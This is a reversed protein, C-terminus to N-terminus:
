DIAKSTRSWIWSSKNQDQSIYHAAPSVLGLQNLYQLDKGRTSNMQEDLTLVLPTAAIENALALQSDTLPDHNPM